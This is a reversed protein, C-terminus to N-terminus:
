SLGAMRKAWNLTPLRVCRTGYFIADNEETIPNKVKCSNHGTHWRARDKGTRIRGLEYSSHVRAVADRRNQFAGTNRPNRLTEKVLRDMRCRCPEKTRSSTDGTTKQKGRGLFAESRIQIKSVM